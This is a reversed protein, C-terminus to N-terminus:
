AECDKQEHLPLPYTPAFLRGGRWEQDDNKLLFDFINDSIYNQYKYNDCKCQEDSPM